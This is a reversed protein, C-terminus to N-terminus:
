SKRSSLILHTYPILLCDEEIFATVELDQASSSIELLESPTRIFKGRDSLILRKKLGSQKDHICPDITLLYGGSALLEQAKLFFQTALNKPLHHMLGNALILDFGANPVMNDSRTLACFDQNSFRYEKHNKQASDVYAEDTDIGLYDKPQFLIANTGPGCGLDLISKGPTYPLFKSFLKLKSKGLKGVVSQFANYLFPIGLLREKLNMIQM